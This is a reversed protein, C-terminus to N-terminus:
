RVLRHRCPEIVVFVVFVTVTLIYLWGLSASIWAATAGFVSAMPGLLIVGLAVFVVIFIASAFFVIPNTNLGLSRELRELM